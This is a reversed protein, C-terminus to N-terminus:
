EDHSGEQAFHVKLAEVLGEVTHERALIDVRLGLDKAAAATVPGICAIRAEGLASVDGDLLAVLNRVTSASTFTAADVEDSLIEALRPKSARPLANRYVAIEDVAAGLSALGRSMTDRRVEAGTLLVRAGLLGLRGMGEVVSESVFGEPVFDASIGRESLSAATASGIAAVRAAQFARADRGLYALRSFVADVANTSPFVVWDYTSLRGLTMDLEGMDDLAQIEITPVELPQAGEDALRQSLAGAQSRSRTVLVRKGFLPGTDFWRLRDRMSVVEGIVVVVPPEIVSVAAVEAIDALTGVVTRQYLESGWQIVAAPTEPPKGGRVLATAIGPLSEWGMLVVLTGGTRALRDWPVSAGSGDRPGTGTVFTLSSAFGRHTLPIGAYAPAAIASTVGPVIEFPVGAVALAEAEEGGRGFVFPDGGKLRVVRKGRGAEAVMLANIDAQTSRPLGPAKGVDVLDAEVPARTLLRPDVLRDYLVVDASELCRLGRVTILGPDGPGAGVLYVTGPNITKSQM